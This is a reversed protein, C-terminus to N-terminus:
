GSSSCISSWQLLPHAFLALTILYVNTESLSASFKRWDIVAQLMYMQPKQIKMKKRETKM